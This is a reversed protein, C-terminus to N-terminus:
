GSKRHRKASVAPMAELWEAKAKQYAERIPGDVEEPVKPQQLMWGRIEEERPETAATDEMPVQEEAIPEAM